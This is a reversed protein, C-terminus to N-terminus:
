LILACVAEAAIGVGCFSWRQVSTIDPIAAIAIGVLVLLVLPLLIATWLVADSVPMERRLKHLVWLLGAGEGVIMASMLVHLDNNFWLCIAGLVLGSAALSTNLLVFTTRGNALSPATPITAMYRICALGGILSVSTQDALYHKGFASAVVIQGFAMYCFGFVSGLGAILVVWANALRRKAQADVTNIFQPTFLSTAFKTVISRPMFAATSLATYQALQELGIRSGILFRDGTDGIVLAVGNATLPKGFQIAEDVMAKDWGLRYRSSSCAHTILVSGVSSAVLGIVMARYDRLVLATCVSVM